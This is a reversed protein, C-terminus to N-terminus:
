GGNPRQDRMPPTSRVGRPDISLNLVVYDVEGRTIGIDMLEMDNLNSLNVRLRHRKRRELLPDWYRKFANSVRRTSAAAQGLATANYTTSM